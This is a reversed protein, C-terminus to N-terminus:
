YPQDCFLIGLDSYSQHKSLIELGFELSKCITQIWHSKYILMSKLQENPGNFYYYKKLLM